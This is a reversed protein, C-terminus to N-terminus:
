AETEDSRHEVIEEDRVPSQGIWTFAENIDFTKRGDEHVFLPIGIGGNAKVEDFIADNDRISLFEKLNTTDAIIDIFDAEFGRSKQIAKYNRCDICIEAGYVKM